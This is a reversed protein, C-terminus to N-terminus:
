RTEKDSIDTEVEGIRQIMPRLQFWALGLSVVLGLAGIILGIRLPTLFGPSSDFDETPILLDESNYPGAM